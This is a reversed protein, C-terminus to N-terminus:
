RNTPHPRCTLDRSQAPRPYHISIPARSRHAPRCRSRRITGERGGEKLDVSLSPRTSQFAPGLGSLLGALVSLLLTMGVVRGTLMSGAWLVDPLFRLQVMRGGGYALALAALGGIGSLLLGGLVMEGFLRPRSAGLSLRVATERRKRSAQTLLLNAVNACAILLVVLSVGGLWRATRSTASATPGRAEILPATLVYTEPNFRGAEIRDSRGGLHLATAKDQAVEESAGEAMRAVAQLWYSGRSTVFGDDGRSSFEGPLAALWIDVPALDM